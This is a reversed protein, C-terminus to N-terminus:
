IEDLQRRELSHFRPSLTRVAECLVQVHEFNTDPYIGHGLNFIHGTGTGFEALTKEVLRTIQAPEAYLAAPDLNGQLSVKGGVAQRALGLHAGGDLGLADAGTEALAELQRGGNKTFVIVPIHPYRVKIDAVITKMYPLSFHLFDPACLAGGWTDFIMVVDVGAVIQAQLYQSTNFALKQLLQHLQGPEAYLLRKIRSFHKSTGGEVMYTAVTWPSGAFGILPTKKDLDAKILRIAEFVYPMEAVPDILPLQEIAKADTIPRTFVPGEYEVFDLGLGMVDPLILIDSFLIAADLPFRALPQLTVQCALEPTRCLTLFTKVQKRLTQYEPLYRGAQRMIWLPTREVPQRKLARLLLPEV